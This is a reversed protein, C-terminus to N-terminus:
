IFLNLRLSLSFTSRVEFEKEYNTKVKIYEQLDSVQIRRSVLSATNYYTDAATIESFFGM